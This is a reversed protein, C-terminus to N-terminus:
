RSVVGEDLVQSSSQPCPGAYVVAFVTDSAPGTANQYVVLTAPEGEFQREATALVTYGTRQPYSACPSAMTTASEAPSKRGSEVQPSQGPTVGGAAAPRPLVSRVWQSLASDNNANQAASGSASSSSTGGSQSLAYGTGVGALVLVGLAGVPKAIRGWSRRRSRAAPRVPVAAAEREADAEQWARALAADLRVGVEVPLAPEPLEALTALVLRLDEIEAACAACAEAHERLRAAATEPSYAYESLEEPALHEAAASRPEQPETM